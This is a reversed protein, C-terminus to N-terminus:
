IFVKGVGNRVNGNNKPRGRKKGQKSGCHNCLYTTGTAEGNTTKGNYKLNLSKAKDKNVLCGCECEVYKMKWRILEEITEENDANRKVLEEIMRDSSELQDILSEISNTLELLTESGFISEILKRDKLHQEFKDLQNLVYKKTALM